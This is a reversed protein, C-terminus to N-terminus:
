TYDSLRIKHFLRINRYRVGRAIKGIADITDTILIRRINQELVARRHSLQNRVFLFYASATVQGFGEAPDLQRAILDPGPMAIQPIGALKELRGQISPFSRHRYDQIGIGNDPSLVSIALDTGQVSPAAVAASQGAFQSSLRHSVAEVGAGLNKGNV